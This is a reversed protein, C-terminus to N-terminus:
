GPASTLDLVKFNEVDEPIDILEVPIQSTIGQM